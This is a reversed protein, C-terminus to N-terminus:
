IGFFDWCRLSFLTFFFSVCGLGQVEKGWMRGFMILFLVRSSLYALFFLLNFMVWLGMLSPNKFLFIQSYLRGELTAEEDASGTSFFISYSFLFFSTCSM